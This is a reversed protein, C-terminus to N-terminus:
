LCMNIRNKSPQIQNILKENTQRNSKRALAQEKKLIWMTAKTRV